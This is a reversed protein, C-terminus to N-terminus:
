CLRAQLRNAVLARALSRMYGALIRFLNLCVQCVQDRELGELDPLDVSGRIFQSRAHNLQPLTYM